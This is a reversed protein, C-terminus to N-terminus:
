CPPKANGKMRIRNGYKKNWVKDVERATQRKVSGNLLSIGVKEDNKKAVLQPPLDGTM